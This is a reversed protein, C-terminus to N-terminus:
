AYVLTQVGLSCKVQLANICDKLALPASRMPTANGRLEQRDIPCEPMGSECVWEVLCKKCFTHAGSDCCVPDQLINRCISCELHEPYSGVIWYGEYAIFENVIAHSPRMKQQLRTRLYISSLARLATPSLSVLKPTPKRYSTPELASTSLLCCPVVPLIDLPLPLGTRTSFFVNFLVFDINLM